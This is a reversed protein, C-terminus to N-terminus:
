LLEPYASKALSLCRNFIADSTDFSSVEEILNRCTEQDLSQVARKVRPVSAPATSLEDYGLGVFLPTLIVDGAAEGCVGAWIGAEHAAEVILRLLRLVAPHTPAYLAAVRENLRDVAITYQILDNTGVSFFRVERAILPACLAASPIEIMAGIEIGENFSHKEERLEEKCVELIANAARLEEIGSIMPYMLSAPGHASARLIARLQTKFLATEELCFRIARWGLFPNDERQPGIGRFLKDGGIDLTRIIVPDPAIGEVIERYFAYQEEEGPLVGERMFLFETRLLGVGRAGHEKVSPVDEPCEINASLQIKRGDLTASETDRLAELGSEIQDRIKERREYEALTEASPALILLGETGDLLVQDGAHIFRLVDRLGVVAPIGLSRSMIAAHSTASGEETAFGLIKDRQFSATDSPALNVALIIAPTKNTPTQRGRGLLNRMVRRTVDQIDVARERLYPDDFQSFQVIFRHAVRSYIEEVNLKDASIARRVEDLITTDDVVLLHADFIAADKAGIANSIREQVELIQNRTEILAAELRQIESPIEEASIPYVPPAEDVSHHIFVRGHAFGPSAPIGKFVREGALALPTDPNM